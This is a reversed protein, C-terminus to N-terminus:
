LNGVRPQGFNHIQVNMAPFKIKIKIACIAALAAGLSHGTTIFSASPYKIKLISM